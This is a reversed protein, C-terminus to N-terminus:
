LALAFTRSAPRGQLGTLIVSSPQPAEEHRHTHSSGSNLIQML